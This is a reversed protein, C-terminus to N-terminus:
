RSWLLNVSEAATKLSEPNIPVLSDQAFAHPKLGARVLLDLYDAPEMGAQRMLGPSYEAMVLPVCQLLRKAGRFAFPEYGEIDIKLLAVRRPDVEADRLFDDLAVVRVECSDHEFLPLLSHRGRNKHPYLYLTKIEEKEGVARNVATVGRADNLCINEELLKFNLPDPEFAFIRSQGGLAKDLMLSYWGINAGVDLVVDGPAADLRGLLGAAVEEEYGGRKYISRGVGDEIRFKLRLGWRDSRAVLYKRGLLYRAALYKLAQRLSTDM